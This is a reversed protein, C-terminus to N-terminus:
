GCKTNNHGFVKCKDCIPPKRDYEVKVFKSAVKNKDKDCYHVEITDQVGKKADLEILVRAYGLREIGQNCMKSTMTDM